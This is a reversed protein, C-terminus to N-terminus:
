IFIKKSNDPCIYGEPQYNCYSGNKAGAINIDSFQWNTCAGEGCLILAELTPSNNYSQMNGHINELTLDVIPINSGPNGTAEGNEYDQQINIGFNHINKLEINRYTINHVLGPGSDSHTKVHIGNPSNSVLCNEFTINSVSNASFDNSFGVSISLGHGGSCVMNSVLINAGVNVVVCDDQNLVTSNKIVLNTGSLDFGDTNHGTFNNKDGESVDITWENIILDNSKVSICHVPCNKINIREAISETVELRMFKPKAIGGNGGFTDWYLEGQGDLVSGKEGTITLDHGKITILPGQWEYYDFYTRGEFVLNTGNKLNLNLGQKAPVHLNSIKIDTCNKIVEDVLSFESIVCNKEVSAANASGVLFLILVNIAEYM